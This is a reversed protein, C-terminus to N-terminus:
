RMSPWEACDFRGNAPFQLGDIVARQGCFMPKCVWDSDSLTADGSASVTLGIRCGQEAHFLWGSDAPQGDLQAYCSHGNAQVSLFELRAGGDAAVDLRLEDYATRFCYADASATPASVAANPTCPIHSVRFGQGAIDDIKWAGDELAFDYIVRAPQGFTSFDAVVRRYAGYDLAVIRLSRQIEAADYDQGPIAFGFDVCAEALNDGYSENAEYFAVMRRTFYSSRQAPSALFWLGQQSVPAGDSLSSYIWRVTEDPSQAAAPAVCILAL